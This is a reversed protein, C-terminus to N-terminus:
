IQKLIIVTEFRFSRFDLVYCATYTYGLASASEHLRQQLPFALLIVYWLCTDTAKTIWCAIRMHWITMQPISRQVDNKWMTVYAAHILFLISCLIHKKKKKLVKRQSKKIRLFRSHCIILYYTTRWTFHRNNRHYKLSNFKRSLKEFFGWINFIVSIRWTPASDNWASLCVSPSIPLCSSALLRRECNQLHAKHHSNPKTYKSTHCKYYLM